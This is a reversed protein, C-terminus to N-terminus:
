PLNVLLTNERLEKPFLPILFASTRQRQFFEHKFTIREVGCLAHQIHYSKRTSAQYVEDGPNEVCKVSERRHISDTLSGGNNPM